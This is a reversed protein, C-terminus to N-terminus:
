GSGKANFLCGTVDPKNLDNVASRWDYSYTSYVVATFGYVQIETKSVGAKGAERWEERISRSRRPRREPKSNNDGAEITLTEEPILKGLAARDNRYARWVAERAALLRKKAQDSLTRPVQNQEEASEAHLATDRRDPDV